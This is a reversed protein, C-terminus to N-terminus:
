APKNHVWIGCWDVFYTHFEEVEINYVTRNCVEGAHEWVNNQRKIGLVEAQWRGGGMALKAKKEDESRYEDTVDIPDVISLKQGAILQGAPVWGVSEVWFPHEETTEIAAETGRETIYHVILTENCQHEFKKVVRRYAQVGTKECRSLVLDGVKLYKIEYMVGDPTQVLTDEEFCLSEAKSLSADIAETKTPRLLGLRMAVVSIFGSFLM